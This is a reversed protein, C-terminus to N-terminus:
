INLEEKILEDMSSYEKELKMKKLEKWTDHKISISTYESM